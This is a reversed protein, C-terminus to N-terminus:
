DIAAAVITLMAKTAPLICMGLDTVPFVVKRGRQHM